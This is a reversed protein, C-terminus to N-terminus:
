RPAQSVAMGLISSIPRYTNSSSTARTITRHNLAIASIFMLLGLAPLGLASNILQPARPALFVVPVLVLLTFGRRRIRVANLLAGLGVVFVFLGGRLEAPAAGGVVLMHVVWLAAWFVVATTAPGSSVLAVLQWRALPLCKLQRLWDTWGSPVFAVMYFAAGSKMLVDSNTHGPAFPLLGTVDRWSRGSPPGDFILMPLLEVGLAFSGFALAAGLQGPVLRTLGSLWDLTAPGGPTRVKANAVGHSRRGISRPTRFLPTIAVLLGCGLLVLGWAPMDAFTTPLRGILFPLLFWGLMAVFLGHNVMRESRRASAGGVMLWPMGAVAIGLYVFEFAAQVVVAELEVAMLRIATFTVMPVVVATCWTMRWLEQRSLPLVRTERSWFVGLAMAAGTLAFVVPPFGSLPALEPVTSLWVLAAVPVAM